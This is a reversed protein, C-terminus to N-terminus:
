SVLVAKSDLGVSAGRTILSSVVLKKALLLPADGMLITLSPFSSATPKASVAAGTAAAAAVAGLDGLITGTTGSKAAASFIFAGTIISSSSSSSKAGGALGVGTVGTLGMTEIGTKWSIVMAGLSSTPLFFLFLFFRFLEDCFSSPVVVVITVVVVVVLFSFM